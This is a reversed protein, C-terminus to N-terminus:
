LVSTGGGSTSPGKGNDWFNEWLRTGVKKAIEITDGNKMKEWIQGAFREQAGGSEFSKVYRSTVREVPKVLEEVREKTASWLESPM